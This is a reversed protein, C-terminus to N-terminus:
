HLRWADETKRHDGVPILSLAEDPYNEIIDVVWLLAALEAKDYSRDKDSSGIRSKLYDIRRNILELRKVLITGRRM